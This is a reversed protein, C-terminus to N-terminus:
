TFTGGAPSIAPPTVTLNMTYTATAVVSPAYGTAIAVANLTQSTSVTIPSKYLASGATPTIRGPKSNNPRFGM